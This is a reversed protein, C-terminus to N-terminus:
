QEAAPAAAEEGLLAHQQLQQLSVYDLAKEHTAALVVRPACGVQAAERWRRPTRPPAGMTTILPHLPLAQTPHTPTCPAGM